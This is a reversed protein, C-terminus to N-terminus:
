DNSVVGYTDLRSSSIPTRLHSAVPFCFFCLCSLPASHWVLLMLFPLLKAKHRHFLRIGLFLQRNYCLQFANKLALPLTCLRSPCTNPSPAM